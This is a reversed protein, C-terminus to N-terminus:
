GNEKEELFEYLDSQLVDAAETLEKIQKELVKDSVVADWRLHDAIGLLISNVDVAAEHAKKLQDIVFNKTNM